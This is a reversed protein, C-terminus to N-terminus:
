GREHGRQSVLWRQERFQRVLYSDRQDLGVQAPPIAVHLRVCAAGSRADEREWNCALLRRRGAGWYEGTCLTQSRAFSRGKFPTGGLSEGRKIPGKSISVTTLGQATRRLSGGDRRTCGVKWTEWTLGTEVLGSDGGAGGGGGGLTMSLWRAHVTRRRRSTCRSRRPYGYRTSQAPYPGSSHEQTGRFRIRSAESM